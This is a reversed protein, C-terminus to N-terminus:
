EVKEGAKGVLEGSQLGFTECLRSFMEIITSLASGVCAMSENLEKSVDKVKVGNLEAIKSMLKDICEEKDRGKITIYKHTIPFVLFGDEMKSEMTEIVCNLIM